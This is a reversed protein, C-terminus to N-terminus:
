ERLMAPLPEVHVAAVRKTARTLAVYLSRIGQSEEAIIRAPEVVVAADVELGKVLRVPVLAVRQDLGHRNAGGIAVGAAAFISEVGAVLSDPVIVAVNGEGVAELEADVLDVLGDELSSLRRM